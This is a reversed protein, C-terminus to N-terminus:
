LCCYSFKIARRGRRSAYAHTRAYTYCTVKVIRRRRHVKDKRELRLPFIIIITGFRRSRARSFDVSVRVPFVVKMTLFYDGDLSLCLSLSVRFAGVQCLLTITICLLVGSTHPCPSFVLLLFLLLLFFLNLNEFAFITCVLQARLRNQQAKSERVRNVTTEGVVM